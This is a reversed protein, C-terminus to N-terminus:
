RCRCRRTIFRSADAAADADRCCILLLMMIAASADAAYFAAYRTVADHLSLRCAYRERLCRLMLAAAGHFSRELLDAFVDAHLPM